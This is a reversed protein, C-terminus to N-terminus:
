IESDRMIHSDLIDKRGLCATPTAVRLSAISVADRVQFVKNAVKRNPTLAM